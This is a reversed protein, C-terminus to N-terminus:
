KNKLNDNDFVFNNNENKTSFIDKKINKNKMSFRFGGLGPVGYYDYKITCCTNCSDNNRYGTDFGGQGIIKHCYCNCM